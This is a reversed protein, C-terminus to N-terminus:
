RRKGFAKELVKKSHREKKDREKYAKKYNHLVRPPITANANWDIKPIGNSRFKDKSVYMGKVNPTTKTPQPSTEAEKKATDFFQKKLEAIKALTEEDIDFIENVSLLWIRINENILALTEREDLGKEKALLQSEKINEELKIIYDLRISEFFNDQM